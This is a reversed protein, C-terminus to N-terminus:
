QDGKILCVSSVGAQVGIVSFLVYFFLAVACYSLNWLLKEGFHFTMQSVMKECSKNMSVPRLSGLSCSHIQREVEPSHVFQIDTFSWQIGLSSCKIIHAAIECSSDNLLLM